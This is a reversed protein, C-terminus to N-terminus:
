ASRLYQAIASLDNDGFGAAIARKVLDLGLRAQDMPAGVRAALATILELDKEVLDITFGIPTEEPTEFAQRKYQVFPAGGAGSAFVEYATLRDIGAREALVLAECLAINLGHVLANVALKTASGTGRPGTHVVRSSLADLVPGARSIVEREGGAMITLNGAEVSSVSGSVPCDVFSAGTEDVAAGIVRTTEPDVTSTDIVIAAASLGSVIGEAELYVARAAADDALSSLVVDSGETAAAPTLAPTADLKAALAKAKAEDRNWLRLEFGARSLTSAMAGGM